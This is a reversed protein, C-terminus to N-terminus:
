PASYPTILQKGPAANGEPTAFVARFWDALSVGSLESVRCVLGPEDTGAAFLCYEATAEYWETFPADAPYDPKFRQALEIAADVPTRRRRPPM